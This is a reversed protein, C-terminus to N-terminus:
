GKPISSRDDTYRTGDSADTWVYVQGLLAFVVLFRM